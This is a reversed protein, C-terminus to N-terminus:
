LEYGPNLRDLRRREADFLSPAASIVDGEWQRAAHAAVDEEVLALEQRSSGALIQLQCARELFYLKHWADAASSGVVLVGHNDLFLASTDDDLAESLRDGEEPGHAHGGYPVRTCRGHFYMANQSARTELGDVTMAVATAFPMHTHFVFNADGRSRHVARHIVFATQEWEGDGDVIQGELDVTLIDSARMESWHPGYRNILFLGDEGPVTASFHNDIGENLGHLDAARMAAALSIKAEAVNLRTQILETTV